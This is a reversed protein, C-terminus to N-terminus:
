SRHVHFTCLDVKFRVTRTSFPLETNTSQFKFRMNSTQLISKWMNTRKPFMSSHFKMNFSSPAASSRKFNIGYKANRAHTEQFRTHKVILLFFQGFRTIISIIHETPLATHQKLAQIVNIDKWDFWCSIWFISRYINRTFQIYMVYVYVYVYININM